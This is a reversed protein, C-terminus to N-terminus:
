LASTLERVFRSMDQWFKSGQLYRGFGLRKRLGWVVAAVLVLLWQRSSPCAAALIRKIFTLTSSLWSSCRQPAALYRKSVVRLQHALQVHCGPHRVPSGGSGSSNSVGSSCDGSSGSGSSSNVSNHGCTGGAVSSAQVCPTSPAAPGIFNDWYTVCHQSIYAHCTDVDSYLNFTGPTGSPMSFSRQSLQPRPALACEPGMMSMGSCSLARPIRRLQLARDCDPQKQQKSQLSQVTEAPPQLQPRQTTYEWRVVIHRM